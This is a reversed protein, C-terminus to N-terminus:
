LNELPLEHPDFEPLYFSEFSIDSLFIITYCYQTPTPLPYRFPGLQQLWHPLIGPQVHYRIIHLVQYPCSYLRFPPIDPGDDSTYLQNKCVVFTQMLLYVPIFNLTTQRWTFTGTCSSTNQIIGSSSTYGTSLDAPPTSINSPIWYAWLITRIWRYRWNRRYPYSM